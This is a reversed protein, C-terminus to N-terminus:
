RDEPLKCVTIPLHEIAHSVENWDAGALGCGINYPVYVPLDPYAECLDALAQVLHPVSTYVRHTKAANGYGVQGFVHAVYLDLDVECAVYTGLLEPRPVAYRGGHGRRIPFQADYAARTQPYRRLVAGSLGAGIAGTCNVQHAIVGRTVSLLDMSKIEM